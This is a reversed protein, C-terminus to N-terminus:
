LLIVFGICYFVKVIIGCVRSFADEETLHILASIGSAIAVGIIAWRFPTHAFYLYTLVDAASLSGGPHGSKANFTGEIAAMRVKTAMAALQKKQCADM